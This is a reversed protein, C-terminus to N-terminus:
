ELPDFIIQETRPGSASIDAAAEGLECSIDECDVGTGLAKQRATLSLEREINDVCGGNVAIAKQVCTARSRYVCRRYKATVVCYAESGNVGVEVYNERCSGGQRAVANYCAEATQFSCYSNEDRVLCWPAALASSSVFILFIAVATRM